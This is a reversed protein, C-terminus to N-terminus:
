CLNGGIFVAGLRLFNNNFRLNKTMSCVTRPYAIRLLLEVPFFLLTIFFIISLDFISHIFRPTNSSFIESSYNQWLASFFQSLIGQSPSIMLEFQRM